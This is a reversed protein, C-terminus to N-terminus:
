VPVDLQIYMLLNLHSIAVLADYVQQVFARDALFEFEVLERGVLDVVMLRVMWDVRDM